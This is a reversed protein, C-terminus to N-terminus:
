KVLEKVTHKTGDAYETTKLVISGAAPRAVRQGQLNVYTTAKVAKEAANSSIGTEILTYRTRDSVTSVGDVTYVSEIDVYDADLDYFCVVKYGPNSYFDYNDAFNYPIDTMSETLKVYTDPTFTYLSGNTYFRYALKDANIYNGDVDNQPINIYFTSTYDDFMLVEPAAPKAPKDGEYLTLSVDTTASRLQEIAYDTECLMVGDPAITLTHKDESVNFLLNRQIDGQGEADFIIPVVRYFFLDADKIIQGAAISVVGDKYTGEYVEDPSIGSLGSMYCKDGDFLVKVRRMIHGGYVNEGNLIYSDPTSGEPFDWRVLEGLPQLKMGSFMGFMSFYGEEENDKYIMLWDESNAQTLTGDEAVTFHAEEEFETAQGYENFHAIELYLTHTDNQVLVQGAKVTIDNGNREGKIWSERAGKSERNGGPTLSNFWMTKGDASTRVAVKGNTFTDESTGNSDIYTMIYYEETGEPDYVPADDKPVDISQTAVSKLTKMAHAKAEAPKPAMRLAANQAGAALVAFCFSLLLLTKKMTIKNKNNNYFLQLICGCDNCVASFADKMHIM